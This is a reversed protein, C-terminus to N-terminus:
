QTFVCIGFCVKILMINPFPFLDIALLTVLEFAAFAADFTNFSPRVLLADFVAAPLASDCVGLLGFVAVFLLLFYNVTVKKCCLM